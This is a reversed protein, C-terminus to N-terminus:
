LERQLSENLKSHPSEIHNMQQKGAKTVRWTGSMDILGDTELEHARKTAQPTLAHGFRVARLIELDSWLTKAM